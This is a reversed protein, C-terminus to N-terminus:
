IWCMILTVHREANLGKVGYNFGEAFRQRVLNKVPSKEEQVTCKKLM